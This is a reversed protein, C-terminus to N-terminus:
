GRFSSPVLSYIKELQPIGATAISFIVRGREKQKYKNARDYLVSQTRRRRGRDVTTSSTVSHLIFMSNLVVVNVRWRLSIIYALSIGLCRDPDESVTLIRVLCCAM